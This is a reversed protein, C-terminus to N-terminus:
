TRSATVLLQLVVGQIALWSSCDPHRFERYATTLLSGMPGSDSHRLSLPLAVAYRREIEANCELVFARVDANGVAVSHEEAAGRYVVSRPGYEFQRSGLKENFGGDLTLAFFPSEHAHAGLRMGSAYLLERCVIGRDDQGSRIMQGSLQM